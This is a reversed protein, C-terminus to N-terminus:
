SATAAHGFSKGQWGRVVLLPAIGVERRQLRERGLTEVLPLFDRESGTFGAAFAHHDTAICNFEMANAQGYAVTRPRFKEDGVQARFIRPQLNLNPQAFTGMELEAAHRDT